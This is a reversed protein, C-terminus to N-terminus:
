EEAPEEESDRRAKFSQWMGSLQSIFEEMSHMHMVAEVLASDKPVWRNVRGCKSCQVNLIAGETCIAQVNPDSQRLVLEGQVITGLPIQCTKDYCRWSRAM